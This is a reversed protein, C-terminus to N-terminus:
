LPSVFAGSRVYGRPCLEGDLAAYFRERRSEHTQKVAGAPLINTLIIKARGNATWVVRPDNEGHPVVLEAVERAATQVDFSPARKRLQRFTADVIEATGREIDVQWHQLEGYISGMAAAGHREIAFALYPAEWRPSELRCLKHAAMARESGGDLDDWAPYLAAILADLDGVAGAPLARVYRGLSALAEGHEASEQTMLAGVTMRKDDEHELMANEFRKADAHVAHLARSVEEQPLLELVKGLRRMEDVQRGMEDAHRGLEDAALQWEDVTVDEALKPGVGPIEIYTGVMSEM